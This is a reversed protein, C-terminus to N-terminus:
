TKEGAIAADIAAALRSSLFAILMGDWDVQTRDDSALYRYRMADARLADREDIFRAADAVRDSCQQRWSDRDSTLADREAILQDNFIDLSASAGEAVVLQIKLADREATLEEIEKCAPCQEGRLWGHRCRWEPELKWTTNMQPPEEDFPFGNEHSLSM